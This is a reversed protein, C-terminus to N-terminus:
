YNWRAGKAGGSMFGKGNDIDVHVFGKIAGYGLRGFWREDLWQQFSVISGNLPYIDAALGLTHRSDKVGGVQSNIPEPRFWSCVGIPGFAVRIKDLEQALKLINQITKQNTPIRRRDGQTVEGVTFFQCIRCQPHQWDIVGTFSASRISEVAAISKGAPAALAQPEARFKKVWEQTEAVLDRSELETQLLTLAQTQHPLDAYHKAVDIINISTM